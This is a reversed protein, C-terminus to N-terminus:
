TMTILRRGAGNVLRYSDRAAAHAHHNYSWERSPPVKNKIIKTAFHCDHVERVCIYHCIFTMCCKVRATGVIQDSPHSFVFAMTVFARKRIFVIALITHIILLKCTILLSNIPLILDFVHPPLFLNLHNLLFVRFPLFQDCPSSKNMIFGWPTFSNFLNNIFQLFLM